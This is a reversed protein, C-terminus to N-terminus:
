VSPVVRGPYDKLGNFFKSRGGLQDAIGQYYNLNFTASCVLDTMSYLNTREGLCILANFLKLFTQILPQRDLCLYIILRTLAHRTYFEEFITPLLWTQGKQFSFIVDNRGYAYPIAVWSSYSREAYHYGVARPNFLFKIGQDALRYALEVDEARRFAPDFGGIDL